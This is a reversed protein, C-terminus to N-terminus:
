TRDPGTAGDVEPPLPFVDAYLRVRQAGDPWPGNKRDAVQASWRDIVASLDAVLQEREAYTLVYTGAALQGLEEDDSDGDLSDAWATLTSAREAIAQHLVSRVALETAPDRLLGTTTMSFGVARWWRERGGTHRPDDEVFGHRELQRLHYSTQGSSEGLARALQSATAAGRSQLESYLQMRLPHVFAKLRSPDLPSPPAADPPPADTRAAGAPAVDDVPSSADDTPPVQDPGGDPSAPNAM